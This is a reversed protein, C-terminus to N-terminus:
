EENEQISHDNHRRKRIHSIMLYRLPVTIKEESPRYPKEPVSDVPRTEIKEEFWMRSEVDTWIRNSYPQISRHTKAVLLGLFVLCPIPITSESITSGPSIIMTLVTFAIVPFIDGLIGMYMLRQYALEHKLYRYIDRVFIFRIAGLLGFIPLYFFPIVTGLLALESSYLLRSYTDINMMYAFSFIQTYTYGFYYSMIVMYYPLFYLGAWLLTALAKERRVSKQLHLEIYSLTEGHMDDPSAVLVAQRQIMPLIVFFGIAITPFSQINQILPYNYYYGPNFLPAAILLAMFVIFSSLIMVGIALNRFPKNAPSKVLRYNFVIAPFALFLGFFLNSLLDVTVVPADIGIFGSYYVSPSPTFLFGYFPLSLINIFNSVNFQLPVIM